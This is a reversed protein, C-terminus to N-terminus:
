RFLTATWQRESTSNIASGPPAIAIVTDGRWTIRYPNGTISV